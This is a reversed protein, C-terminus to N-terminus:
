RGQTRLVGAHAQRQVIHTPRVTRVGGCAPAAQMATRWCPEHPCCLRWHQARSADGGGCRRVSRGESTACMAGTLGPMRVFEIAAAHTCGQVSMRVGACMCVCRAMRAHACAHADRTQAVLHTRAHTHLHTRTCIGACVCMHAVAIHIGGGGASPTLKLTRGQQWNMGPNRSHLYNSSPRAPM